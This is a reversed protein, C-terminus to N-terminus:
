TTPPLPRVAIAASNTTCLGNDLRFAWGHGPCVICGDKIQGQSLDAMAHPCYRQIEYSTGDDAVVAREDLQKQKEYRAYARYSDPNAFRLFVVLFENYHDPERSANVRLSLLLEEWSLKQDLVLNLLRDEIQLAYFYGEGAHPYVSDRIRTFDIIVREPNTGRTEILLRDDIRHRFFSSASVLPQFYDRLKQLLSSPSDSIEALERRIVPLRERQYSELYSRKDTFCDTM